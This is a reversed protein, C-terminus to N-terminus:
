IQSPPNRKTIRDLKERFKGMFIFYNPRLTPKSLVGHVGEPDAVPIVDFSQCTTTRHPCLLINIAWKGKQYQYCVNINYSHFTGTCIKLDSTVLQKALIIESLIAIRCWAYLHAFRCLYTDSYRYITGAGNMLKFM